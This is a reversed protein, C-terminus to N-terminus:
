PQLTVSNFVILHKLKDRHGGIVFRAKFKIERDENPNIALEFRGPLFKADEPVYECLM